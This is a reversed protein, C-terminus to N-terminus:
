HALLAADRFLRRQHYPPLVFRLPKLSLRRRAFAACDCFGM